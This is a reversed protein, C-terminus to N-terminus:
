SVRQMSSLVCHPGTAARQIPCSRLPKPLNSWGVGDREIGLPADEGSIPVLLALEDIGPLEM